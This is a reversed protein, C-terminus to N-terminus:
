RAAFTKIDCDLRRKPVNVGVEAYGSGNWVTLRMPQDAAQDRLFLYQQDSRVRIGDIAVIVDGVKLGADRIYRSHSNILVGDTPAERLVTLNVQETGRPFHAALWADAAQAYAPSRERNRTYFHQLGVADKYRERVKKFYDEAEPFRQMKELLNAMTTLGSASYVDAADKAIQLAEDTRGAAFYHNVLWEINNAVLVRNRSRKFASEFAEVADPLMGHRLFYKALTIFCDPELECIERMLKAYEAPKDELLRVIDWMADANFDRIAKRAHAVQEASPTGQSQRSVMKALAYDYPALAALQQLYPTGRTRISDDRAAVDYVTGFPMPPQLWMAAQSQLAPNSSLNAATVLEPHAQVLPAAKTAVAPATSADRTRAIKAEVLPYLTLGSLLKRFEQEASNAAQSAGLNDRLFDVTTAIAESLHRQHFAALQGWSLVELQAKGEITRVLCRTAPRNLLDVLQPEAMPHGSFAQWNAGLSALELPVSSKAFINGHEVSLGHSLAVRSWEAHMPAKIEQLFELARTNIGSAKLARFKEMQELATAKPADKLLRWDGTARIKLARAWAAQEAGLTAIAELAELQRGVLCLTVIRALKGADAEASRLARALTLHVAMRCLAPRTDAFDGGGERLALSGVLLAAQEHLDPDLPRRSLLDSLRKGQRIMVASDSTTLSHLMASDPALPEPPKGPWATLLEAALAVYDNASWLHHKLEIRREIRKGGAEIVVRFKATGLPENTTEVKPEGAPASPNHSYYIIEAVDRVIEGVLWQQETRITRVPAPVPQATSAQAPLSVAMPQAQALSNFRRDEAAMATRRQAAAAVADPQPTAGLSPSYPGKKLTELLVQTAGADNLQKETAADLGGSFGRQGLEKQVADSSYGSRLM